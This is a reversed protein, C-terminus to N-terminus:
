THVTTQHEEEWARIAAIADFGYGENICDAMCSDVARNMLQRRTESMKSWNAHRRTMAHLLRDIAEGETVTGVKRCYSGHRSHLLHCSSVMAM